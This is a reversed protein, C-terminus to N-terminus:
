VYEQSLVDDDLVEDEIEPPEDHTEEITHIDEVGNSTDDDDVEQLSLAQAEEQQSRALSEQAKKRNM